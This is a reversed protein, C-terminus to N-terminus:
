RQDLANDKGPIYCELMVGSSAFQLLELEISIISSRVCHTQFLLLEEIFVVWIEAFDDLGIDTWQLKFRTLHQYNVVPAHHMPSCSEFTM